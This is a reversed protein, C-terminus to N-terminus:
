ASLPQPSAAAYLRPGGEPGTRRRRQRACIDAVPCHGCPPRGAGQAAAQEHCAQYLSRTQRLLYSSTFASRM